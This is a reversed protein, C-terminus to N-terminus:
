QSESPESAPSVPTHPPAIEKARGGIQSAGKIRLILNELVRADDSTFHKAVDQSSHLERSREESMLIPIVKHDGGAAKNVLQKAIAHKKSIRKRVGNENVTVKAGLEREIFTSFNLSGKPRGKPNGSTGKKFQTQRPPKKYGVDYLRPSKEQESM